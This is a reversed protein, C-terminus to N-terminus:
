DQPLSQQGLLPPPRSTRIRAGTGAGGMRGTRVTPRAGTRAPPTSDQGGGFNRCPLGLRQAHRQAVRRPPGSRATSRTRPHPVSLELLHHREQHAAPLWRSIRACSAMDQHSPRIPVMPSDYAAWVCTARAQIFAGPRFAIYMPHHRALHIREVHRGERCGVEELPTM